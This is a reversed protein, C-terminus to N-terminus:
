SGFQFVFFAISEYLGTDPRLGDSTSQMKDAPIRVLNDGSQVPAFSGDLEYGLAVNGPLSFDFADDGTLLNFIQATSGGVYGQDRLDKFGNGEPFGDISTNIRNALNGFGIGWSYAAAWDEISGNAFGDPFGRQPDNQIEICGPIRGGQANENPADAITYGDTRLRFMLHNFTQAGTGRGLEYSFSSFEAATSESNAVLLLGCRFNNNQTSEYRADQLELSIYSPVQGSPGTWARFTDTEKDYAVLGDVALLRPQFPDRPPENRCEPDDANAPYDCFDCDPDTPDSLDCACDGGAPILTNDPCYCEANSPDPNGADDFTCGEPDKKCAGVALAAGGLALGLMLNKYLM